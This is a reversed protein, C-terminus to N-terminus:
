ASHFIWYVRFKFPAIFYGGDEMLYGLSDLFTFSTEISFRLLYTDVFYFDVFGDWHLKGWILSILVFLIQEVQMFTSHGGHHSMPKMYTVPTHGLTDPPAWM